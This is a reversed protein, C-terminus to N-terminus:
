DQKDRDFLIWIHGLYCFAASIGWGVMERFLMKWFSVLENTDKEICLLGMKSKGFSTGQRFYKIQITMIYLITSCLGAFYGWMTAFYIAVPTDGMVLGIMVGGIFGMIMALLNFPIGVLLDILLGLFREGISALEYGGSQDTQM